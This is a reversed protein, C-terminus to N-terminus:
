GKKSFAALPIAKAPRVLTVHTNWGEFRIEGSGASKSPTLGLPLPAGSAAIYLTGGSKSTDILSFTSQGAFSGQAGKVLAGHSGILSDVFTKLDTLQAFSAFSANTAPTSIWHGALLTALALSGFHRWFPTAAKFYYTGGFAVIQFSLGSESITGEGGKGAVLTLDLRLASGGSTGSGVIRVSSAHDAAAKVDTLIAPIPKAFEGGGAAASAALTLGAVLALSTLLLRVSRMM